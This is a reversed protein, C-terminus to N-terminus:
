PAAFTHWFVVRRFGRTALPGLAALAKAGYTPDLTVGHAAALLRAQEGAATPYGYGRGLGDLIRLAARSGPLSVGDAQLLAASRHALARVRVANAVVRPAVRVGVVTSPWGLADVALLLGAATGGSGLPAVIADPPTGDCQGALELGACCHGAVGRPDAGGGPIWRRGVGGGALRGAARWARLLAIPFTLHHGARVVVDAAATTAAAVARAAATDPQPFQALVARRGLARAHVATALCHTSATGGITVFVADPPAGALLFELGRVKVGGGAPSSRDERKLWLADVGLAAGLGAAADLPTPWRGLSCPALAERIKRTLLVPDTVAV